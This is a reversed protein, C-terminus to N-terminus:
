AMFLTRSDADDLEFTQTHPVGAPDAPNYRLISIKLLRHQKKVQTSM